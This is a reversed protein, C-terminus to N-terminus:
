PSEETDPRYTKETKQEPEKEEFAPLSEGAGKLFAAARNKWVAVEEASIQYAIANKVKTCVMESTETQFLSILLCGGVLVATVYTRFALLGGKQKKEKGWLNQRARMRREMERRRRRREQETM